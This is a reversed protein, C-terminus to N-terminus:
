ERRLVRDLIESKVTFAPYKTYVYHLLDDLDEDCHRAKVAGIREVQEPLVRRRLRQEVFRSGKETISYTNDHDNAMGVSKLFEIEDYIDHTFPGYRHAVFDFPASELPRPPRGHLAETQALFLIKVLRTIGAVPRRDHAHLILLVLDTKKVAAGGATRIYFSQLPPAPLTPTLCDWPWACAELAHRRPNSQAAVPGPRHLLGTREPTCGSATRRLAQLTHQRRM